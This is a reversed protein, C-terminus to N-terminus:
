GRPPVLSQLHGFRAIAAMEPLRLIRGSQGWQGEPVEDIVISSVIPRSRDPAASEAAAQVDVALQAKRAGDLVGACVEMRAFVGRVLADAPEGASYFQGPPLEQLLVLGKSRPGPEHAVSEAKLAADTLARALRAKAPADFAGPTLTVTLLPM